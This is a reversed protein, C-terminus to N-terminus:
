ARHESLICVGSAVERNHRQRAATIALRVRGSDGNAVALLEPATYHRSPILNHRAAFSDCGPRCNGARLADSLCVWVGAVEAAEAAERAKTQLRAEHNRRLWSVIEGAPDRHFFPASDPHLDAGTATEIARIGHSDIGWVFGEPLTVSVRREGFIADLQQPSVILGFSRVWNDHRARTYSVPKGNKWETSGERHEGRTMWGAALTANEGRMNIDAVKRADIERIPITRAPLHDHILPLFHTQRNPVGTVIKRLRAIELLRALTAGQADITSCIADISAAPPATIRRAEANLRALYGRRFKADDRARKAEPDARRSRHLESRILDLPRPGIGDHWRPIVRGRSSLEPGTPPAPHSRLWRAIGQPTEATCGRLRARTVALGSLLRAKCSPQSPLPSHNKM